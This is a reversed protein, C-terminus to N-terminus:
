EDGGPRRPGGEAGIGGFALALLAADGTDEMPSAPPRLVLLGLLLGAAVGLGGAIALGWRGAVPLSPHVVPAGAARPLRAELADLVADPPPPPPPLAQLAARMAAADEAFAVCAACTGLHADLAARRTSTLPGSLAASIAVVADDCTMSPAAADRFAPIPSM